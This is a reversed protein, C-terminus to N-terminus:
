KGVFITWVWALVTPSAHEPDQVVKNAAALLRCLLSDDTSRCYQQVEFLYGGRIVTYDVHDKWDEHDDRKGLERFLSRAGEPETKFVDL